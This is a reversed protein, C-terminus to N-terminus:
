FLIVEQGPMATSPSRTNSVPRPQQGSPTSGGPRILTFGTSNAPSNEVKENVPVRSAAVTDRTLDQLFKLSEADVIGM